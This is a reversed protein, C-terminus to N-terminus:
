TECEPTRFCYEHLLIRVGLNTISMLLASALSLGICLELTLPILVIAAFRFYQDEKKESNGTIVGAAVDTVSAVISALVGFKPNLAGTALYVPFLVFFTASPWLLDTKLTDNTISHHIALSDM